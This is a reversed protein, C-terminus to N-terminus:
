MAIVKVRQMEVTEAGKFWRIEISNLGPKFDNVVTSVEASGSASIRSLRKGNVNLELALDGILPGRRALLLEQPLGLFVVGTRSNNISIDFKPFRGWEKAISPEKLLATAVAGDAGLSEEWLKLVDEPKIHPNASTATGDGLVPEFPVWIFDPHTQISEGTWEGGIIRGEGDLELIYTYTKSATRDTDKLESQVYEKEYAKAFHVTTTVSSWKKALPNFIYSSEAVGKIQRMAESPAINQQITSDFKFHPYNWVQEKSSQDLIVPYKKIGIWNTIATHFTGPNVDDCEGMHYIDLRSAPGPLVGGNPHACRNGGLFYFRASMYVEALLSKIDKPTFVVSGRTVNIKPEQHRSSAASFGNCHGAWSSSQDTSSVTHNDQEWKVAKNEGNNFAQDYKQLVNGNGHDRSTGGTKQPYWSGAYPLRNSEVTGSAPLKALNLEYDSQFLAYFYNGKNRMETEGTAYLDSMQKRGGDSKEMMVTSPKCAVINMLGICISLRLFCDNKIKNNITSYFILGM